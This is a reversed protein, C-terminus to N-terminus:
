SLVLYAPREGGSWLRVTQVARMSVDSPVAPTQGLEDLLWAAALPVSALVDPSLTWPEAGATEAALELVVERGTRALRHAPLGHDHVANAPVAHALRAILAAVDAGGQADPATFSARGQCHVRELGDRIAYIEF